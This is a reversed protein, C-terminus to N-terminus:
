IKKFLLRLAVAFLLTLMLALFYYIGWRFVFGFVIFEVDKEYGYLDTALASRVYVVCHIALASLWILMSFVVIGVIRKHNAVGKSNAM